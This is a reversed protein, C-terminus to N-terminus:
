SIKKGKSAALAAEKRRIRCEIGGGALKSGLFKKRKWGVKEGAGDSYVLLAL